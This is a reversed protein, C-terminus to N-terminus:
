LLTLIRAAINTSSFLLSLRVKPNPMHMVIDPSSLTCITLYSFPDFGIAEPDNESPFDRSEFSV